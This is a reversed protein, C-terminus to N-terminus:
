KKMLDVLNGFPDNKNEKKEQNFTSKEFNFNNNNNNYFFNNRNNNYNMNNMNNMMMMPNNFNNMAYYNQQQQQYFMNNYNMNFMQNGMLNNNYINQQINAKEQYAQNLLDM